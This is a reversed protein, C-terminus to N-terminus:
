HVEVEHLVAVPALVDRALACGGRARARPLEVVVFDVRVLVVVDRAMRGGAQERAQRRLQASPRVRGDYACPHGAVASRACGRIYIDHHEDFAKIKM